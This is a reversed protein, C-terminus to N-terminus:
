YAILELVYYYYSYIYSSYLYGPCSLWIKMRLWIEDAAKGFCAALLLLWCGWRCMVYYVRM